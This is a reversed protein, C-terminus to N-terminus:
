ARDVAPRIDTTVRDLIEIMQKLDDRQNRLMYSHMSKKLFDSSRFAAMQISALHQRTQIEINYYTIVALVVILVSILAAIIKFSLPFAIKM